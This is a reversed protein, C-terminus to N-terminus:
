KIEPSITASVNEPNPQIIGNLEEIHIFQMNIYEVRKEARIVM